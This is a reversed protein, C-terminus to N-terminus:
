SPRQLYCPLSAELHSWPLTLLLLKVAAGLSAAAAECSREAVTPPLM